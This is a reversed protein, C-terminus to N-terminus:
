EGAKSIYEQYLRPSLILEWSDKRDERTIYKKAFKVHGRRDDVIWAEIVVVDDWDKLHDRVKKEVTGLTYDDSWEALCDANSYRMDEDNKNWSMAMLHNGVDQDLMKVIESRKIEWNKSM